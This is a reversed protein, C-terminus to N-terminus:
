LDGFPKSILDGDGISLLTFIGTARRPARYTTQRRGDQIGLDGLYFVLCTVFLVDGIPHTVM